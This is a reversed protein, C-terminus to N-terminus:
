NFSNCLKIESEKGFNNSFKSQFPNLIKATVDRIYPQSYLVNFCRSIILSFVASMFNM